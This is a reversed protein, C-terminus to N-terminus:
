AIATYRTRFSVDESSNCLSFVRPTLCESKVLPRLLYVSNTLKWTETTSTASIMTKGWISCSYGHVLPDVLGHITSQASHSTWNHEESIYHWTTQNIPAVIYHWISHNIPVETTLTNVWICSSTKEGWNPVWIHSNTKFKRTFCRVAGCCVLNSQVPSHPALGHGADSFWWTLNGSKQPIICCQTTIGVSM